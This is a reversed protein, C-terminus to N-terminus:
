AIAPLTPMPCREVAFRRLCGSGLVRSEPLVLLCRWSLETDADRFQHRVGRRRAFLESVRPRVHHRLPVNEGGAIELYSPGRSPLRLRAYKKLDGLAFVCAAREAAKRRTRARTASPPPQTRAGRWVIAGVGDRRCQISRPKMFWRTVLWVVSPSKLEERHRDRQDSVAAFADNNHM